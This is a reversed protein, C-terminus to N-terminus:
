SQVGEAKPEAMQVKPAASAFRNEHMASAAVKNDPTLLEARPDPKKM